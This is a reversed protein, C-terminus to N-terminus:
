LPSYVQLLASPVGRFMNYAKGDRFFVAAEYEHVILNDGWAIEENPYTWVIDGEKAGVWEIVKPM